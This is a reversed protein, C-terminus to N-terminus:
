AAEVESHPQAQNDNHPVTTPQPPALLRIEARHKRCYEKWLEPCGGFKKYSGSGSKIAKITGLKICYREILVSPPDDSLIIDAAEDYTRRPKHPKPGQNNPPPNVMYQYLLWLAIKRMAESEPHDFPTRLTYRAAEIQAKTFM